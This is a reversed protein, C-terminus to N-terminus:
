EEGPCVQNLVHVAHFDGETAERVFTVEDWSHSARVEVSKVLYHNSPSAVLDKPCTVQHLQHGQRISLRGRPLCFEKRIMTSVIRKLESSDIDMSESVMRIGRVSMREISEVKNSM